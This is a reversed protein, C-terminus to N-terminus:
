SMGVLYDCRSYKLRRFKRIILSCTPWWGGTEANWASPRFGDLVYLWPSADFSSFLFKTKRPDIYGFTFNQPLDTSNWGFPVNVTSSGIHFSCYVHDLTFQITCLTITPVSQISCTPVISITFWFVFCLTLIILM